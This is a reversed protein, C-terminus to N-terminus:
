GGMGRSAPDIGSARLEPALRRRLEAAVAWREAARVRGGARLTVGLDTLAITALYRPAEIIRDAWAPDAALAEGVRDIREIVAELREDPIGPLDVIAMAHVRTLNSSSRILGNSISHVTGSPDRIVTRRLGIEEVEGEVGAVAITDGAYYQSELIILMGMLYDLVISQGAVTLAAGLLGLGAVASWLDLAGLIAFVLALLLAARVLGALLQEVTAARKALEDDPIAGGFAVGHARITGSVLRHLLPRSFRWALWFLIAGALLVPWDGQLWAVPDGLLDGVSPM